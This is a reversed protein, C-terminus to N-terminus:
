HNYLPNSCGVGINGINKYMDVSGKDVNNPLEQLYVIPIDGPSPTGFKITWDERKEDASTFDRIVTGVGAVFMM